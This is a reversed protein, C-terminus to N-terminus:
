EKDSPKLQVVKKRGSSTFSDGDKKKTKDQVWMRGKSQAFMEGTLGVCMLVLWYWGSNENLIFFGFGCLTLLMFLQELRVWRKDESNVEILGHRKRYRTMLIAVVVAYIFVIVLWVYYIDFGMGLGLAYFALTILANYRIRAKRHIPLERNNM